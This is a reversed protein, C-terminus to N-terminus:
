QEGYTIVHVNDPLIALIKKVDKYDLRGNGCGARPMVYLNSPTREALKKLHMTSKEILKIDAVEFWQHKVPFTIIKYVPFYHVINGLSKINFGLEEPLKPYMEAAEQACGRGMVSTGDNKLTGNTTVVRYDALPYKWLYGYVEIM